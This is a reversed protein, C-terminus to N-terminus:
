SPIEIICVPQFDLYDCSTLHYHVGNKEGFLPPLDTKLSHLHGFVVHDIKAAEFRTTVETDVLDSSTPPYHVLAIRVAPAGALGHMAVLAADLRELERRYLKESQVIDEQSRPVRSINEGETRWAILDAFSLGPVDWLRTGCLHIPGSPGRIAMADSHTAHVRDPLANRVKTIGQWWYDHNGRCIVKTGPLSGVWELDPLAADIQMAWSIDGPLLLIDDETIRNACAAAIKNHHNAWQAGFKDMSKGDVGLSLHPDSIAFIRM